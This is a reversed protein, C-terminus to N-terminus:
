RLLIAGGLDRILLGSLAARQVKPPLHYGGGWGAGGMAPYVSCLWSCKHALFSLLRPALPSIISRGCDARRCIM